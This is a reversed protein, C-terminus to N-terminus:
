GFANIGAARLMQITLQGILGMGIVACNEGLRLDAQRIGQLAIAAVTSYCAEEFSVNEPIKVALNVPVAVVEAHNAIDAGACAVRDGVKFDDVDSGVEIVTGSTSYGLASLSDLKNMVKKYASSLGEKKVTDIVQKVQEPREKAKGIYGKRATTVKMSETGSSILSFHNRVLIKGKDMAPFPVESIEMKGTKLNTTLQLM